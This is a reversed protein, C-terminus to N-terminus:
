SRAATAGPTAGPGSNQQTAILGILARAGVHQLAFVVHGHLASGGRLTLTYTGAARGVWGPTIVLEGLRYAAPLPRMRFQRRYQALVAASGRQQSAPDIRTVGPALLSALAPLNRASYAAAFRQVVASVQATSFPRLPRARGSALVVLALIAAAALAALAGALAASHRRRSRQAGAGASVRLTPVLEPDARRTVRADPDAVRTPRTAAAGVSMARVDGVAPRTVPEPAAAPAAAAEAAPVDRTRAPVPRPGWRLPRGAAAERAAEGLAGATAYRHAPIKALARGVIQDFARPLGPHTQSPAPPRDHLHGSITAATSARSFPPVGTLCAYLLCGLSYVDSRADTDEGRLHEPSMFDLTGVWDGTETTRSQGDEILRTIGFDTLYVHDDSLLVNAPKIDRHVLGRAHAADLARAVGDLVRAAEAPDMPGDESLRQQLDIGGVYRMVLYLDGAQEGAAYVPIVNPHDIAAMLRAEREFRRRAAADGAREAAIVKIAVPRQLSLETGRYIVGMGGRGIVAEIRCGAFEDGAALRTM